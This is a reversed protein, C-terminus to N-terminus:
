SRFSSLKLEGDTNSVGTEDDLIGRLRLMSSSEVFLLFERGVFRPDIALAIFSVGDEILSPLLVFIININMCIFLSHSSLSLSLSLCLSCSRSLCFCLSFLLTLLFLFLLLFFLYFSFYSSSPEEKSVASLIKERRKNADSMLRSKLHCFTGQLARM